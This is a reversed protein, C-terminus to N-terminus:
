IPSTTIPPSSQVARRGPFDGGDAPPYHKLETNSRALSPRWDSGSCSAKRMTQCQPGGGSMKGCSLAMTEFVREFRFSPKQYPKKSVSVIKPTSKGPSINEDQDM